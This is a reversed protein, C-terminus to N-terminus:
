EPLTPSPSLTILLDRLWKWVPCLLQPEGKLKLSLALLHHLLSLRHWNPWGCQGDACVPRDIKVKIDSMMQCLKIWILTDFTSGGLNFYCFDDSAVAAIVKPSRTEAAAAGQSQM